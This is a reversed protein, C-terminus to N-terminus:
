FRKLNLCFHVFFYRFYRFITCFMSFDYLEKTFIKRFKDNMLFIKNCSYQLTVYLISIVYICVYVCTCVSHLFFHLSKTMYYDDRVKWKDHVLAIKQNSILIKKLSNQINITLFNLSINNPRMKKAYM